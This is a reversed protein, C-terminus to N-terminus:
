DESGDQETGSASAVLDNKVAIVEIDPTTYNMIFGGRLVKFM